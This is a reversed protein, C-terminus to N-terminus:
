GRGKILPEIYKLTKDVAGRNDLMAAAANRGLETRKAENSLLDTFEERLRESIQSEDTAIPTQRLAKTRLLEDVV